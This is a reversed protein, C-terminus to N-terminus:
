HQLYHAPNAANKFFPNPHTKFGNISMFIELSCCKRYAQNIMPGSLERITMEGEGGKVLVRSLAFGLHKIYLNLLIRFPYTGMIHAILISFYTIYICTAEEPM